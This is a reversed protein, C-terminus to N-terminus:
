QAACSSKRNIFHVCARTQLRDLIRLPVDLRCFLIHDIMMGACQRECFPLRKEGIAPM